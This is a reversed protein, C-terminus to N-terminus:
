ATKSFDTLSVTPTNKKSRHNDPKLATVTKNVEQGNLMEASWYYVNWQVDSVFARNFVPFFPWIEFAPCTHWTFCTSKPAQGCTSHAWHRKVTLLYMNLWTRWGVQQCEHCNPFRVLVYEAWFCVQKTVLWTWWQQLSVHSIVIIM